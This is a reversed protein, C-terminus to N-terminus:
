DPRINVKEEGKELVPPTAVAVQVRTGPPLEFLGGPAQNEKGERNPAVGVIEDAYQIARLAAHPNRKYGTIIGKLSAARQDAPARSEVMLQYHAKMAPSLQGRLLQHVREVDRKRCGVRVAIEDYNLKPVMLMAAIVVSKAEGDVQGGLPLKRRTPRRKSEGATIEKVM